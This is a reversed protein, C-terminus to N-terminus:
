SAGGFGLTMTPIVSYHHGRTAVSRSGSRAPVSRADRYDGMVPCHGYRGAVDRDEQPGDGCFADKGRRGVDSRRSSSTSLPSRWSSSLSWLRYDGYARLRAAFFPPRLRWCFALSSGAWPFTESLWGATFVSATERNPRAFRQVERIARVRYDAFRSSCGLAHRDLNVWGMVVTRRVSTEFETMPIRCSRSHPSGGRAPRCHIAAAPGVACARLSSITVLRTAVSTTSTAIM